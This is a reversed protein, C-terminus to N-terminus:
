KSMFIKRFFHTIVLSLIRLSDLVVKYNSKEKRYIAKIPLESISYRNRNIELILESSIEMRKSKLNLKKLVGREILRLGSQSDTTAKKGCSLNTLFTMILNGMLRLKPFNEWEKRNKLRSGIIVPCNNKKYYEVIKKIDEGEHQGDGDITIVADFDHKLAEEFGTRLASGLGMNKSHEIVRVGKEEAIKRTNDSSGDNIVIIESVINRIEDIVNGLTAEVNYSPIIAVIKREKEMTLNYFKKNIKVIWDM